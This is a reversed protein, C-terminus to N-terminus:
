KKGRDIKRVPRRTDHTMDSVVQRNAPEVVLSTCGFTRVGCESRQSTRQNVAGGRSSELQAESVLQLPLAPTALGVAAPVLRFLVPNQPM